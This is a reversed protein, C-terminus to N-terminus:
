SNEPSWSHKLLWVRTDGDDGDRRGEERTKGKEKEDWYERRQRCTRWGARGGNDGEAKERERADREKADREARERTDRERERRERSERERDGERGTERM